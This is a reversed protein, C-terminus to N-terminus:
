GLLKSLTRVKLRQLIKMVLATTGPPLSKTAFHHHLGVVKLTAKKLIRQWASCFLLFGFNIIELTTCQLIMLDTMHRFLRASCTSYSHLLRM